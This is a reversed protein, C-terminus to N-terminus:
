EKGPYKQLGIVARLDLQPPSTAGAECQDRFASEMLDRILMGRPAVTVASVRQRDDARWKWAEVKGKLGKGIFTGPHVASIDGFHRRNYNLYHTM